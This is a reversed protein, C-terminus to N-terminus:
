LIRWGWHDAGKDMRSTVELRLHRNHVALAGEFLANWADFCAPTVGQKGQMMRWSRTKVENGAVEAADGGADLLTALYHAFSEADKGKTGIFNKPLPGAEIDLEGKVAREKLGYKGYDFGTFCCDHPNLLGASM